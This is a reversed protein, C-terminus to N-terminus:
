RATEDDEMLGFPMEETDMVMAFWGVGPIAMKGQLVKGGNAEVKEIYGDIGIVSLTFYMPPSREDRIAMGGDIGPEDSGTRCMWYDMPGAWKEFRWGFVKSYFDMARQPDRANIDFHAVRPM